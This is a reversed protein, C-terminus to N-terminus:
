GSGCCLNPHSSPKRRGLRIRVNRNLNEVASEALMEGHLEPPLGEAVKRRIVSDPIARFAELRNRAPLGSLREIYWSPSEAKLM